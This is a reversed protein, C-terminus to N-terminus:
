QMHYTAKCMNYSSIIDDSLEILGGEFCAAFCGLRSLEM